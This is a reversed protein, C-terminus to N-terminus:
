QSDADAGLFNVPVISPLRFQKVPVISSARGYLSRVCSALFLDLTYSATPPCSVVVTAMACYRPRLGLSPLSAVALLPPFSHGDLVGRAAALSKDDISAPRRSRNPPSVVSGDARTLTYKSTYICTTYAEGPECASTINGTRSHTLSEVAYVM